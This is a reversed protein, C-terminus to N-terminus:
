KRQHVLYIGGLVLIGGAIQNVTLIEGLVPIGVLATVVAQGLLSVSVRAASLHGLAYNIALWGGLQSVLGLSILALWTLESFGTLQYGGALNIPLLILVAASMYIFNFTLTDV